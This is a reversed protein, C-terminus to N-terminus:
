VAHRHSERQRPPKGIDTAPRAGPHNEHRSLYELLGLARNSSVVLHDLVERLRPFMEATVPEFFVDNVRCQTPALRRLMEVGKRTVTLCVRRRDKPDVRKTLLDLRILKGTEVTVFASSLRLHEAVRTVSVDNEAELHSVSVLITFQIGSLGILAGLSARVSELRAGLALLCHLFARFNADSGHDLLEPRTVTLPLLPEQRPLVKRM